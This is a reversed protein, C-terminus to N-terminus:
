LFWIIYEQAKQIIGVRVVFLFSILISMYYYYKSNVTEDELELFILLPISIAFMRSVNEYVSWFHYFSASYIMFFNLALGLRFAWGAKLKGTFITYTGILLLFLLPLKSLIRALERFSSSQKLGDQISLLYTSIGELPKIFDALRTPSWHPFTIKLYMQWAFPILLISVIWFVRKWDKQVLANLGLPFFLFLSPEKTIIALSAIPVFLLYKKELFFYYSIITLSVMVSDSVLVIYSGLSFPSLLYVWSLYSYKQGLIKRLLVFSIAFLSLNWFYMGFIAAHTGFFGFLGVLFPYGIRPARYSEDFGSPWQNTLKSITRSYFYFIQGDYGSGLDGPSGKEVIAGIPMDARNWEAFEIGFHVMSTPNWEYRRWQSITMLTYFLLFFILGNRTTDYKKLKTLMM